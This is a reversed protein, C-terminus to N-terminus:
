ITRRRLLTELEAQLTLCMRQVTGEPLGQDRLEQGVAATAVEALRQHQVAATARLAEEWATECEAALRDLEEDASGQSMAEPIRRRVLRQVEKGVAEIADGTAEASAARLGDCIGQGVSILIYLCVILGLSAPDFRREDVPQLYIRDSGLDDALRGAAAEVESM